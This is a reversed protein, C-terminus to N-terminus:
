EIRMQSASFCIVATRSDALVIDDTAHEPPTEVHGGMKILNPIIMGIEHSQVDVAQTM